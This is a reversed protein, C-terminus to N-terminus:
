RSGSSLRTKTPHAYPWICIASRPEWSKLVERASIGRSNLETFNIVTEWQDETEPPVIKLVPKSRRLVIFSRGKKVQNIYSEINERLEKLGVTTNKM